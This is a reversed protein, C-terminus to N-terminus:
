VSVLNDLDVSFFLIRLIHEMKYIIGVSDIEPLAFAHGYVKFEMERGLHGSYHKMYRIEM